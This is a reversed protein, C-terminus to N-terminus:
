GAIHSDIVFAVLRIKRWGTGVLYAGATIVLRGPVFGALWM